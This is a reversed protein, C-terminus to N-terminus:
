FLIQYYKLLLLFPLKSGLKIEPLNAKIIAVQNTLQDVKKNLRNLSQAMLKNQNIVGININKNFDM